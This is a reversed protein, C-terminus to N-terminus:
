KSKVLNLIAPNSTTNVAKYKTTIIVFFEGFIENITPDSTSSNKLFSSSIRVFKAVRKPFGTEYFLDVLNATKKVMYEKDNERMASDSDLTAVPVFGEDQGQYYEFGAASQVASICIVLGIYTCVFKMKDTPNVPNYQQALCPHSRTRQYFKVPEFSPPKNLKYSILHWICVTSVGSIIVVFRLGVIIVM